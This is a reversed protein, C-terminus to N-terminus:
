STSIAQFAIHSLLDKRLKNVLYKQSLGGIEYKAWFEWPFVKYSLGCSIIQTTGMILFAPMCEM